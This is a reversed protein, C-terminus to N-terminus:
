FRWIRYNALLADLWGLRKSITGVLTDERNIYLDAALLKISRKLTVPVSTATDGYGCVFLAEIQNYTRLTASPWSKGNRLVIWGPDTTTDVYYDDTSVTNETDDSDTYKLSTVSQLQGFPLELSNEEPWVDFYVYWTQTILRRTTVDEVYEQAAAIVTALYTDENTDTREIRLHDKFDNLAIATTGPATHLTTIM